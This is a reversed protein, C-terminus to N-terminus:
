NDSLSVHKRTLGHRRRAVDTAGAALRAGYYGLVIHKAMRSRRRGHVVVDRRKLRAVFQPCTHQRAVLASAACRSRVVDIVRLWPSADQGFGFVNRNTVIANINTRM